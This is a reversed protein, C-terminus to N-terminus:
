RVSLRKKMGATIHDSWKGLANKLALERHGKPNLWAMFEEYAEVESYCGWTGPELTGEVGDEALRRETVADGRDRLIQLDFESPGQIFLRGAGFTVAGGSAVLSGCGMGDLWWIRNYFRDKGMPRTRGINLLQRFEREIGELRRELKNVEEDLRRREALATKVEAAKVRAKAREKGHALSQAKNKMSQRRATSTRSRRAPSGDGNDSQEEAPRESDVDSVAPSGRSVDGVATNSVPTAPAPTEPEIKSDLVAM